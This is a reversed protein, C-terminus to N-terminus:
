RNLIATMNFVERNFHEQSIERRVIISRM